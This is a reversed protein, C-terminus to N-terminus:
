RKITSANKEKNILRRIAKSITIINGEEKLNIKLLPQIYNKIETDTM